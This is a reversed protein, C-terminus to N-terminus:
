GDLKSFLLDWDFGSGPDTKRGPAIHEHGTIRQRNLKPYTKFLAAIIAVLSAYQEGTYQDVDTGELEIGISFDNCNDRGQYCSKGAHWARQDFPVFQVVGGRRDVFLHSSVQLTQIEAFYPHEDPDLQNTFFREVANGGFEGPPLSICHLVILEPELGPPRENYNPSIVQRADTLRHNRICFQVLHSDTM